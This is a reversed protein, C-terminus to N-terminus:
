NRRIYVANKTTDEDDVGVEDLHVEPQTFLNLESHKHSRSARGGGPTYPQATTPHTTAAFSRDEDLPSGKLNKRTFWYQEESPRRRKRAEDQM